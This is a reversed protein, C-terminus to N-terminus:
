RGILARAKHVAKRVRPCNWSSWTRGKENVCNLESGWILILDLAIEPQDHAACYMLATSGPGGIPMLALAVGRPTGIQRNGVGRKLINCVQLRDGQKIAAVLRNKLNNVYVTDIGGNKLQEQSNKVHWRRMNDTVERLEFGLSPLLELWHAAHDGNSAVRAALISGDCLHKDSTTNDNVDMFHSALECTFTSGSMIKKSHQVILAARPAHWANTVVVLNHDNIDPRLAAAIALAHDINCETTNSCQDFFIRERESATTNKELFESSTLLGTDFPLGGGAKIFESTSGVYVLPCRHSRM